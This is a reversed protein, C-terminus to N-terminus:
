AIKQTIDADLFDNYAGRVDVRGKLKQDLRVSGSDIEIKQSLNMNGEFIAVGPGGKSLGCANYTMTVGTSVGGSGVNVSAGSIKANGGEPCNWSLTGTLDVPTTTNDARAQSPKSAAFLADAAGQKGDIKAGPGCAVMVLSGAVLTVIRKLM